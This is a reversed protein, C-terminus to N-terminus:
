AERFSQPLHQNSYTHADDECGLAVWGPNDRVFEASRECEVQYLHEEAWKKLAPTIRKVFFHFCDKNLSPNNSRTVIRDTRPKSQAGASPSETEQKM